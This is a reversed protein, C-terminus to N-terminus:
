SQPETGCESLNFFHEPLQGRYRDGYNEFISREKEMFWSRSLRSCNMLLTCYWWRAQVYNDLKLLLCVTETALEIVSTTVFLPQIVKEDVMSSINGQYHDDSRATGDLYALCVTRVNVGASRGWTRASQSARYHDQHPGTRRKRCSHRSHSQTCWCFSPFLTGGNRQASEIRPNTRSHIIAPALDFTSVPKKRPMASCM